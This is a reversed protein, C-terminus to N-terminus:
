NGSGLLGDCEVWFCLSVDGKGGLGVGFEFIFVCM